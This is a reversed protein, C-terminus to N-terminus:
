SPRGNGTDPTSYRQLLRPKKRGDKVYVEEESVKAELADLRASMDRAVKLQLVHEVTFCAARLRVGNPAVDGRLADEIVAIGPELLHFMQGLAVDLVESLAENYAQKVAPRSLYRYGSQRSLGVSKCADAFSANKMLAGIFKIEKPSLRSAGEGESPVSQSM